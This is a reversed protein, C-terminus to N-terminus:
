FQLGQVLYLGTYVASTIQLRMLPYQFINAANCRGFNDVFMRMVENHVIIISQNRAIHLIIQDSTESAEACVQVLNLCGSFPPLLNRQFTSVCGAPHLFGFANM